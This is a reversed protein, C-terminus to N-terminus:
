RWDTALTWWPAQCIILVDTVMEGDLHGHSYAGMVTGPREEGAPIRGSVHGARPGWQVARSM